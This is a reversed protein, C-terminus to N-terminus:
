KELRQQTAIDSRDPILIGSMSWTRRSCHHLCIHHNGLISGWDDGHTEISFHDLRPHNPPLGWHSLFGGHQKWNSNILLSRGAPCDRSIVVAYFSRKRSAQWNGELNEIKCIVDFFWSQKLSIGYRQRIMGIVGIDNWPAKLGANWSSSAARSPPGSALHSSPQNFWRPCSVYIMYIYIYIYWSTNSEVFM